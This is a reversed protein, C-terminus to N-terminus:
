GPAGPQRSSQPEHYGTPPGVALGGRSWGLHWGRGGARRGGPERISEGASSVDVQQHQPVRPRGLGLQQLKHLLARGNPHTGLARQEAQGGWYPPLSCAPSGPGWSGQPLQSGPIEKENREGTNLVACLSSSPFWHTHTPKPGHTSHPRLACARSRQRALLQSTVSRLCTM